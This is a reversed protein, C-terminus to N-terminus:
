AAESLIMRSISRNPGSKPLYMSGETSSSGMSFLLAGFTLRIANSYVLCLFALDSRLVGPKCVLELNHFGTIYRPALDLVETSTSTSGASQSPVNSTRQGPLCLGSKQSLSVQFGKTCSDIPPAHEQRGVRVGEVVREDSPLDILQVFQVLYFEALPIGNITRQIALWAHIMISRLTFSTSGGLVGTDLHLNYLPALSCLFDETSCHLAILYEQYGRSQSWLGHEDIM